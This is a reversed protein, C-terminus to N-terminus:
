VEPFDDSRSTGATHSKLDQVVTYIGLPPAFEFASYRFNSVFIRLFSVTLSKYIGVIPGFVCYMLIPPGITPIFLDSVSVHTYFNPVIDPLTM